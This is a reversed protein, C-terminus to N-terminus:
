QNACMEIVFWVWSYQLVLNNLVNRRAVVMAFLKNPAFLFQENQVAFHASLILVINNVPHKVTTDESGHYM